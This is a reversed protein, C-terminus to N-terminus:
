SAVPASSYGYGSTDSKLLAEYKGKLALYADVLMELRENGAFIGVEKLSFGARDLEGLTHKIACRYRYLSEGDIAKAQDSDQEM